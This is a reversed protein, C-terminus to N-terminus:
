PQNRRPDSRTATIRQMGARYLRLIRYAASGMLLLLMGLGFYLTAFPRLIHGVPQPFAFILAVTLLYFFWGAVLVRRFIKM